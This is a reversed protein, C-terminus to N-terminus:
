WILILLRNEQLNKFTPVVHLGLLGYYKAESGYILNSFYFAISNLVMVSLNMGESKADYNFETFSMFNRQKRQKFGNDLVILSFSHKLRKFTVCSTQKFSGAESNTNNQVYGICYFLLLNRHPVM